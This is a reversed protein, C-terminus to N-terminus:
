PLPSSALLSRAWLRSLLLIKPPVAWCSCVFGYTLAWALPAPLPRAGPGRWGKWAIFACFGAGHMAGWLLWYADRAHWLGVCLFVIMTNLYIHFERLGWRNFFLMDRFAATATMNWRSWFEAITRSAFPANFNRPVDIGGWAGGLRALCGAGAMSFYWAWPSAGFSAAAKGVRGARFLEGAAVTLAVGALMMAVGSALAVGGGLPPRPDDWPGQDLFESPRLIVGCAPFPLGCWALYALLPPAEVREGGYEWVFVVLRLLLLMDLAGSGVWEEARPTEPRAIFGAILAAMGFLALPWRLRGRTRIVRDIVRVYLWASLSLAYVGVVQERYIAALAAAGVLAMGARTRLPRWRGLLWGAVLCALSATLLREQGRVVPIAADLLWRLRHM